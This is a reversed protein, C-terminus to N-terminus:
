KNQLSNTAREKEKRKTSKEWGALLKGVEAIQKGIILMQRTNIGQMRKATEAYYDLMSLMVKAKKQYIGREEQEFNAQYLNEVIDVACNQLRTVISWRLKKPSKETIVFIYEALKKAHTFVAMEKQRDIAPNISEIIFPKRGVKNLEEPKIEASIEEKAEKEIEQELFSLQEEM